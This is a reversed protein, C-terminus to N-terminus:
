EPAHFQRRRKREAAIDHFKQQFLPLVIPSQRRRNTLAAEPQRPGARHASPTPGPSVLRRTRAPLLRTNAFAPGDLPKRAVNRRLSQRVARLRRDASTISPPRRRRDIPVTASRVAA